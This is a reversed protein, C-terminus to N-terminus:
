TRDYLGIFHRFKAADRERERGTGSRVITRNGEVFPFPHMHSLRKHTQFSHAVNLQTLLTAVDEHWLVDSLMIAISLDFLVRHEMAVISYFMTIMDKLSSSSEIGGGGGGGGGGM